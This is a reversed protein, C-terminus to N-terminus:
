DEEIDLDLGKLASTATNGAITAAGITAGAGLAVLFPNKDVGSFAVDAGASGASVYATIPLFCGLLTGLSFAVPQVPTLGFGYNAWAFPLVPSLRLLSILVVSKSFSAEKFAKDIAVFQESSSATELLAERGFYRSLLFSLTASVTSCVLVTASGKAAGFIAGASITLVFAAAIPVVQLFILSASFFAFGSEGMDQVFSIFAAVTEVPNSTGFFQQGFAFLVGSGAVQIVESLVATSALAGAAVAGTGVNEKVKKIWRKPGGLKAKESPKAMTVDGARISALVSPNQAESPMINVSSDLDLRRTRQAPASQQWSVGLANLTPSSSRTSHGSVPWQAFALVPNAATLLNALRRVTGPIDSLEVPTSAAAEGRVASDELRSHQGNQLTWRSLHDDQRIRDSVRAQVRVVNGAVALHAVVIVVANRRPM